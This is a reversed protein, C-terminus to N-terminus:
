RGNRCEFGEETLCCGRDAEGAIEAAAACGQDVDLGHERGTGLRDRCGGKPLRLRETVDQLQRSIGEEGSKGNLHLTVVALSM